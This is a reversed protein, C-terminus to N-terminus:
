NKQTIKQEIDVRDIIIKRIYASWNIHKNEKILKKVDSGISFSQM